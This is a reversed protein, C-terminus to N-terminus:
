RDAGLGCIPRPHFYPREPSRTCCLGWNNAPVLSSPVIPARASFFISSFEFPFRLHLRGQGPRFLFRNQEIEKFGSFDPFPFVSNEPLLGSVFLPLDNFPSARHVPGGKENEVLRKGKKSSLAIIAAPFPLIPIHPFPSLFVRLRRSAPINQRTM